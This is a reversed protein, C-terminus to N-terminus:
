EVVCFQYAGTPVECATYPSPCDAATSCKLVCAKVTPYLCTEGAGCDGHSTCKTTCVRFQGKTAVDVDECECSACESATTCPEGTGKSGPTCTGTDPKPSTDTASTDQGSRDQSPGQDSGGGDSSGCAWLMAGFVWVMFKMTRM